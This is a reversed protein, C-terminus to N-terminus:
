DLCVCSYWSACNTDINYLGTVKLIAGEQGAIGSVGTGLAANAPAFCNALAAGTTQAALIIFTSIGLITAVEYQLGTFLINSSTNSSTVFAGLMGIFPSLLPFLDGTAVAIGYALYTTLGSVTMLVAMMTMSIITATAGLSQKMTREWAM